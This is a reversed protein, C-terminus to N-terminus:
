LVLILKHEGKNKSNKKLKNVTKNVKQRLIILNLYLKEIKLKLIKIMLTKNLDIFYVKNELVFALYNIIMDKDLPDILM